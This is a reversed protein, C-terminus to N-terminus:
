WNEIKILRNIPTYKKQFEKDNLTLESDFEKNEESEYFNPSFSESNQESEAIKLIRM